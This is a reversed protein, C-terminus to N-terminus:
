KTTSTAARFRCEFREFPTLKAGNFKEEEGDTSQISGTYSDFFHYPDPDKFFSEWMERDDIFSQCLGHFGSIKDSLYVCHKYVNPTMFDVEVPIIFNSDPIFVDPDDPQPQSESEADSEVDEENKQKELAERRAQLSLTWIIM